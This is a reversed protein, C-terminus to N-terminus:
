AVIEVRYANAIGSDAESAQHLLRQAVLTLYRAGSEDIKMLAEVVASPARMVQAWYRIREPYLQPEDHYPNCSECPWADLDVYGERLRYQSVLGCDVGHFVVTKGIRSLIYNGGKTRFLQFEVWRPNGRRHSSSEALLVGDFQLTREGDRVQHKAEAV